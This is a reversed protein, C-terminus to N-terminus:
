KLEFNIGALYMTKVPDTYYYESEESNSLDRVSIFFSTQKNLDLAFKLNTVIRDGTSFAASVENPQGRYYIQDSMYYTTINFNLKNFLQYNFYVGGYLSPTAEHDVEPKIELEDGLDILDFYRAHDLVKSQQLTLYPRVWFNKSTYNMSLTVGTQVAKSPINAMPQNLIVKPIPQAALDIETEGKVVSIMDNVEGRFAEVDVSFNKALKGRYGIEVLSQSTPTLSKNGNTISLGPIGFPLGLDFTQPVMFTVQTNILFQSTYSKAYEARILHGEKLKFTTSFQYSLDIDDSLNVYQDARVSAVFRLKDALARYELKFSAGPNEIVSKGDMMTYPPAFANAFALGLAQDLPLSPDIGSVINDFMEDSNSILLEPDLPHWYTSKRYSVSPLISLKGLQLNYSIDADIFETEQKHYLGIAIDQDGFMYSAKFNLNHVNGAAEIYKTNSKGKHLVAEYDPFLADNTFSNEAGGRLYYSINPMPKHELLLNFGSKDYSVHNDQYMTELITEQSVLGGFLPIEEIPMYASDAKSYHMETTRERYQKNASAIVSFKENFRYGVSANMISTNYSGTQANAMAFVGNRQARATIINIVGTVANPGYLSSAPGRIVEIREVDNLDVPLTQWFTSGMLYNFVPRGDIMVLSLKNLGTLLEEEGQYPLWDMGRIHVNYNGNTLQRVIVGPVLRLAEPISTAGSAKIEERTLVSASVPAEFLSEAKKSASVIEKDYSSKRELNMLEDVKLVYTDPIDEREQAFLLTDSLNFLIVICIILGRMIQAFNQRNLEFSYTGISKVTDAFINIM